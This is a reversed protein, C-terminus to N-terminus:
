KDANQNIFEVAKELTDFGEMSDNCDIESDDDYNYYATFTNDKERVVYGLKKTNNYVYTDSHRGFSKSDFGKVNLEISNTNSNVEQLISGKKLKMKVTRDCMNNVM